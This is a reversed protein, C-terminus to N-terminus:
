FHSREVLVFQHDDDFENRLSVLDAVLVGDHWTAVFVYYENGVSVITGAFINKKGNKLISPVKNPFRLLYMLYQVCPLHYSASCSTAIHEAAFMLKRRFASRTNSDLEVISVREEHIGSFLDELSEDCVSYWSTPSMEQSYKTGKEEMAVEAESLAHYVGSVDGASRPSPIRSSLCTELVFSAVFGSVDSFDKHMVHEEEKKRPRQGFFSRPPQALSRPTSDRSGRLFMETLLSHM